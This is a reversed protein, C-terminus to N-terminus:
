ERLVCRHTTPHRDKIGHVGRVYHQLLSMLQTDNGSRIADVLLCVAKKGSSPRSAAAAAAAAAATANAADSSSNGSGAFSSRPSRVGAPSSGLVVSGGGGSYSDRGGLLPAVGGSSGERLGGSSSDRARSIPAGAAMSASAFLPSYASSYGVPGSGISSLTGTDSVRGLPYGGGGGGGSSPARPAMNPVPSTPNSSDTGALGSSSRV